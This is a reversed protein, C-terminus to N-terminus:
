SDEEVFKGGIVSPYWENNWITNAEYDEKTKCYVKGNMGGCRQGPERWGTLIYTEGRFTTVEMGEKAEQGNIILKM